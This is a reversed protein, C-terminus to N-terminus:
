FVFRLGGIAWAGPGRFGNEYLKQNFLNEVKGYFEVSKGEGVPLVYKGTLDAKVFGNMEYARTGALTFFGYLYRDAAFLDFTVNVRRGIWQSALLSFTNPSVGRTGVVSGAADWPLRDDSNSYTYAANIVTRSTPRAEASLEVGRALGGRTNVYGGFRGFPDDPPIMGSFDFLIVEQLRTYFYTASLKVRSAALWQDVGADVSIAREPRLRPDGFPSFSGFFFTAGYREFLSPARYSNGVHARFKTGTSRVMYSIAADGTLARKPNEARYGAYPSEGGTFRPDDLRFTQVRGSFAIQLNRGLLSIQDQAFVAHSRQSITSRNGVRAGPDPDEDTNRNDYSESEYEYGGSVLNHEGAQWDARGQAVHIRGDFRSRSNFRPEFRKGGPGDYFRRGTDLFQYSARYSFRPGVQHTLVAALNRFSAVRNSDGDNLSPVYTANGPAFELGQEIRRVQDDPLPVGQVVGSAPLNGALEPAVYPSDLLRTRANSLLARGSLAVGPRLFYKVFGQGSTNRYPNVGDLGKTVNLHTVGGSYLLRNGRAGGAVKALGRAMGLGGGEALVEGRPRGGGEDSVVNVVGGIAHSGYLSSGSGRLVEVREPAVVMLDEWLPTASGQPDASDRMRLGDILLATDYSRLGRVQIATLSGPGSDQRVRFGPVLRLSEAVSYEDRLGIEEVDVVSMAKATEEIMLPTSSATVVVETRTTALKLTIDRQETAGPALSIEEASALTLGKARARLLYGGAALRSFEYAGQANTETKTRTGADRSYLEVTADAVAAGDPDLVTGKLTARQQASAGAAWGLLILITAISLRTNSHTKRTRM